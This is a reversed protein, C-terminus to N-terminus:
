WSFLSHSQGAWIFSGGNASAVSLTTQSTCTSRGIMSCQHLGLIGNHTNSTISSRAADPGFALWYIRTSSGLLSLIATAAARFNAGVVQSLALQFSVICRVM